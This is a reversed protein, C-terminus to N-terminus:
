QRSRHRRDQELGDNNTLECVACSNALSLETEQMMRVLNASLPAGL